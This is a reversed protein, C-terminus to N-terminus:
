IYKKLSKADISAHSAHYVAKGDQIVLLQPSEHHVKFKHAIENSIARYSILDLFYLTMQEENLEYKNEFRNLAMRSIGCRTSHKFIAIPKTKSDEAIQDLQEISDLEQWPIKAQEKNSDESSFIKNFFGM